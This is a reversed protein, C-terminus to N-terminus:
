SSKNEIMDTTQEPAPAEFKLYKRQRFEEKKGKNWHSVPNFYGSVRSYIECTIKQM